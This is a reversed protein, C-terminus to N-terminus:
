ANIQLFIELNQVARVTVYGQLELRIYYLVRDRTLEICPPLHPSFRSNPRYKCSIAERNGVIESKALM